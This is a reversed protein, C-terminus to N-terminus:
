HLLVSETALDALDAEEVCIEEIRSHVSQRAIQYLSLELAIDYLKREADGDSEIIGKVNDTLMNIMRAEGDRDARRARNVKDVVNLLYDELTMVGEPMQDRLNSLAVKLRNKEAKLQDSM